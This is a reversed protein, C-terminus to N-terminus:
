QGVVQSADIEREVGNADVAKLTPPKPRVNRPMVRDALLPKQDNSLDTQGPLLFGIKPSLDYPLVITRPRQKGVDVMWTLEIEDTSIDTVVLQITQGVIVPVVPKGKELIMDSLLIRRGPAGGKVELENFRQRIRDEESLEVGQQVDQESKLEVRKEFPNREETKIVIPQIDTPMIMRPDHDAADASSTASLVATLGALVLITAPINM